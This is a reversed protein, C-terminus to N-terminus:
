KGRWVKYHRYIVFSVGFVTVVVLVATLLNDLM